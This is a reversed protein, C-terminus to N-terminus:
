EDLWAKYDERIDWATATLTSLDISGLSYNNNDCSLGLVHSGGVIENVLFHYHGHAFIKPKVAEFAQNVLKRGEAAYILDRHEFGGPNHQIRADITKAYPADHALFVDAYGGEAVKAVDEPTIAEEPWWLWPKAHTQVSQQKERWTRDVSPAGGLAVFSVGHDTWRLGRPAVYINERLTKWGDQDVPIDNILAWNEHNGPVVFLTIGYHELLTKAKKLFLHDRHSEGIGFDGLQYVTSIGERNFKNLAYSLWHSNGHVDGLLGVRTM